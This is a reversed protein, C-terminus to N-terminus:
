GYPTCTEAFLKKHNCAKLSVRKENLAPGNFFSSDEKYSKECGFKNTGSLSCHGTGFNCLNKKKEKM